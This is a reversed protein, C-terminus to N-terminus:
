ERLILYRPDEPTGTLETRNLKSLAGVSSYIGVRGIGMDTYEDPISYGPTAPWVDADNQKLLAGSVALLRELPFSIPGALRRPGLTM